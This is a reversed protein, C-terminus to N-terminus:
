VMPKKLLKANLSCSSRTVRESLEKAVYYAASESGGLSREEITEGDFPIGGAYLVIHM